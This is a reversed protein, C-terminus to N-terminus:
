AGGTEEPSKDTAVLDRSAVDAGVEPSSQGVDPTRSDDNSAGVAGEL